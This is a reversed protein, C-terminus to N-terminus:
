PRPRRKSLGLDSFKWVGQKNRIFYFAYSKKRTASYVHVALNDHHSVALRSCGLFKLKDMAPKELLPATIRDLETGDKVYMLPAFAKRPKEAKAAALLAHVTKVAEETGETVEETRKLHALEDKPWFIWVALAIVLLLVVLLAIQTRTIKGKPFFQMKNM